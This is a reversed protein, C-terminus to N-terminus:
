KGLLKVLVMGFVDPNEVLGDIAKYKCKWFDKILLELLVVKEKIDKQQIILFIHGKQNQIFTFIHLYIDRDSKRINIIIVNSRYHYDM